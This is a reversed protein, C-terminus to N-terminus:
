WWELQRGLGYWFLVVGALWVIGTLAWLAGSFLIAASIISLVFAGVLLFIGYKLYKDWDRFGKVNTKANKEAKAIQKNAKKLALREVGNLKQGEKTKFSVTGATSRNIEIKSLMGSAKTSALAQANAKAPKNARSESLVANTVPTVKSYELVTVQPTATTSEPASQAVLALPAAVAFLAYFFIKKM